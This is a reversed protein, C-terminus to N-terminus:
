FCFTLTQSSQLFCVFEDPGVDVHCDQLATVCSPPDRLPLQHPTRHVVKVQSGTDRLGEPPVDAAGRVGTCHCQLPCGKNGPHWEGRLKVATVVKNRQNHKARRAM